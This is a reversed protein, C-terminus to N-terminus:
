RVIDMLRYGSHFGLTGLIIKLVENLDFNIIKLVFCWQRLLYQGNPAINKEVPFNDFFTQLSAEQMELHFFHSSKWLCLYKCVTTYTKLKIYMM